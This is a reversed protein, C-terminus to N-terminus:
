LVSVSRIITRNEKFLEQWLELLNNVYTFLRITLITVLTLIREEITDYPFESNIQHSFEIMQDAFWEDEYHCQM